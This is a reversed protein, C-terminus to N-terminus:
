ATRQRRSLTRELLAIVEAKSRGTADNWKAIQWRRELARQNKGLTAAVLREARRLTYVDAGLEAAASKLAGLVCFAASDADPAGQKMGHLTKAMSGQTWGFELREKAAELVDDTWREEREDLAVATTVTVATM